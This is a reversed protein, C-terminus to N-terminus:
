KRDESFLYVSYFYPSKINNADTRIKGADFVIIESPTAVAVAAITSVACPCVMACGVSFFQSVGVVGNQSASM